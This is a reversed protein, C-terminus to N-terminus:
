RTASSTSKVFDVNICNRSAQNKEDQVRNELETFMILIWKWVIKKQYSTLFKKRFKSSMVIILEQYVYITDSEFDQINEHYFALDIITLSYSYNYFINLNLVDFDNSKSNDFGEAAIFLWFLIDFIVHQKESRYKINLQFQFLYTFIKM